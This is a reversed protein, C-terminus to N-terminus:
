PSMGCNPGHADWGKLVTALVTIKTNTTNYFNVENDDYIATYGAKAM